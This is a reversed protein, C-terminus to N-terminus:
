RGLTHDEIQTLRSEADTDPTTTPLMAEILKDALGAPTCWM